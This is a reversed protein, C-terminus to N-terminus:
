LVTSQQIRPGLLDRVVEFHGKLYPYIKQWYKSPKPDDLLPDVQKRMLEYADMAFKKQIEETSQFAIRDVLTGYAKLAMALYINKRSDEWTPRMPTGHIAKWLAVAYESNSGNAIYFYLKTKIKHTRIWEGWIIKSHYICDFGWCEKLVAGFHGLTGVVDRMMWGGASHSAIILNCIQLNSTGQFHGLAQLVEELYLQCGKGNGLKGLGISGGERNRHGLWPAIFVVDKNSALVSQRLTTEYASSPNFLNRPSKVYYGHLWLIVNLNNNNKQHSPPFYIGTEQTCANEKDAFLTTGQVTAKDDVVFKCKSM